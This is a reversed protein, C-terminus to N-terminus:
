TRSSSPYTRTTSSALPLASLKISADFEIKVDKKIYHIIRRSVAFNIPDKWWDLRARLKTSYFLGPSSPAFLLCGRGPFWRPALPAKPSQAKKRTVPVQLPVSSPSTIPPSVGPLSCTAGPVARSMDRATKGVPFPAVTLSPEFVNVLLIESRDCHKAKERWRGEGGHNPPRASADSPGSPWRSLPLGLPQWRPLSIAPPTPPLPRPPVPLLVQTATSVPALVAPVLTLLLSRRSCKALSNLTLL